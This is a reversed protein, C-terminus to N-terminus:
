LPQIKSSARVFGFFLNAAIISCRFSNSDITLEYDISLM